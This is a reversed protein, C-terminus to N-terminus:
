DFITPSQIISSIKKWYEGIDWKKQTKYFSTLELFVKKLQLSHLYSIKPAIVSFMFDRYGGRFSKDPYSDFFVYSMLGYNMVPILLGEAHIIRGQGYLSSIVDFLQDGVKDVSYSLKIEKPYQNVLKPGYSDDWNMEILIIRDNASKLFSNTEEYLMYIENIKTTIVEAKKRRNLKGAVSVLLDEEVIPKTLYDDVGLIKGLRIDEPSDLASLFIFPIHNFTIDTSIANFFAYGDMIPMIIDSIILDPREEHHSLLELAEQGNNATIVRCQNHKLVLALYKLVNPNDEVILVLPEM